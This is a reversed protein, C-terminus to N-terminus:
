HPQDILTMDTPVPGRSALDAVLGGGKFVGAIAAAGVRILDIANGTVIVADIPKGPELSGVAAHRDLSRAANITAAVIAEELTLGM